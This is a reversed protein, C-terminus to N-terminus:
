LTVECTHTDPPPVGRQSIGKPAANAGVWFSGDPVRLTIQVVFCPKGGLCAWQWAGLILMDARVM